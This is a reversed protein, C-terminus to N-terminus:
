LEVVRIGAALLLADKLKYDRTRVGKTDEVVRRGHELYSFDGRYVAQRGSRYRIPVGAVALPISPQLVLDSIAGAQLLLRLEAYRRAEKASAFTIGDVVTKRAHFKNM